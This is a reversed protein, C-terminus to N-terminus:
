LSRHLQRLQQKPYDLVTKQHAMVQLTQDEFAMIDM